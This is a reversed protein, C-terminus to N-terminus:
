GNRERILPKYAYRNGRADYLAHHPKHGFADAEAWYYDMAQQDLDGWILRTTLFDPWNEDPLIRLLEAMLYWDLNYDYCVTACDQRYIELWDSLARAVQWQTGEVRDPHQKLLPRVVQNVFNSCVEQRYDILEAYFERGTEDVLGISILDTDVFDSFETDLFILM